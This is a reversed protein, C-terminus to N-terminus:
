YSEECIHLLGGNFSAKIKWAAINILNGVHLGYLGMDVNLSSAPQQMTLYLLDGARGASLLNM